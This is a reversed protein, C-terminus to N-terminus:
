KTTPDLIVAAIYAPSRKTKNWYKLLKTFETQLSEHMFPHDAFEEMAVKFTNALFNITPLVENLTAQHDKTAKTADHFNRLFDRIHVLTKWEEATLLDKQLDTKENTVAVITAKIREIAWDLM